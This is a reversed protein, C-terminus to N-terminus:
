QLPTTFPESFFFDTAYEGTEDYIGVAYLKYEKGPQISNYGFNYNTVTTEVTGRVAMTQFVDAKDTKYGIDIWRQVRADLTEKTIEQTASADIVDWYYMATAPTGSVKVDVSTPTIENITFEFTLDEPNDSGKTKFKAKTVGTTVTNQEYGFVFAYYETDPALREKEVTTEGVMGSLDLFFSGYTQFYWDLYEEDTMGEWESAPSVAWTYSDENSPQINITAKDVEINTVTVKFTNDSMPIDGTSFLITEEKSCVIGDDNIAVAFAYYETNANLYMEKDIKGYSSIEEIVQERTKGTISGRWILNQILSQIDPGNPWDSKLKVDTYYRTNNDSPATNLKVNPGNVDISINFTIDKMEISKTRFPKKVGDSIRTGDPTLGVAFIYHDTDVSLQDFTMTRTGTVLIQTSMFTEFDLGSMSAVFKYANLFDAIADDITEFREDLAWAEYALAHWTMEPDLPTITAVAYDLGVETIDIDFPAKEVGEGQIVSFEKEIAGNNYTVIVKATRTQGVEPNEDVTFNIENETSCDFDHLWEDDSSALVEAGEVPNSITYAMTAIGGEPAVELTESQLNLETVHTEDQKCGMVAVSTLAALVSLTINKSRNFLRNM